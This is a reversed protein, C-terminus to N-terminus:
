FPLSETMMEFIQKSAEKAFFDSMRKELGEQSLASIKIPTRKQGLIKGNEEFRIELSGRSWYWGDVQFVPEVDILAHLSDKGVPVIQMGLATVAKEFAPLIKGDSTNVTVQLLAFRAGLAERLSLTTYQEPLDNRGSLFIYRRYQAERDLQLTLAQNLAAFPLLRQSAKQANKWLASIERDSATIERRIRKSAQARELVALSYHRGQDDQDRKAIRVGKLTQTSFVAVARSARQIIEEELFGNKGKVESSSFDTSQDDIVSEFIQAIGARARSDASDINDGSGVATVYEKEPFGVRDGRVWEITSGGCATLIFLCIVLISLRM